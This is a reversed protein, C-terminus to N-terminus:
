GVAPSDRWRDCATRRSDSPSRMPWSSRRSSMRARRAATGPLAGPGSSTIGANTAGVHDFPSWWTGGSDSAGPGSGSAAETFRRSPPHWSWDLLYGGRLVGWFLRRDFLLALWLLAETTDARYEPHTIYGHITVVGHPDLPTRRVPRHFIAGGIEWRQLLVWTQQYIGTGGCKWCSDGDDRVGDDCSWCTKRIHQWETGILRGFRHLLRDKLQYFPERHSHPPKANARVLLWTLVRILM